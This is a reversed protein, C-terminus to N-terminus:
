IMSESVFENLAEVKKMSITQQFLDIAQESVGGLHKRYCEGYNSFSDFVEAGNQRLRKRLGRIDSGFKSFDESIFMEKESVIYLKSPESDNDKFWFFIALSTIKNQVEDKFTALIVSYNKEDRLKEPKGKGEDAYKRGYYGLVYSKATREKASADAAKNYALRRPQVLLTSLADVITSKGSGSDGTLLSTHGDLNFRWISKNFTGWNYIELNHLRIGLLKNM